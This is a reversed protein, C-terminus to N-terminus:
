GVPPALVRDTDIVMRQGVVLEAGGNASRLTIAAQNPDDAGITAAIGAYTDGPRVVHVLPASDDRTEAIPGFSTLSVGMLQSVVVIVVSLATAVLFRRRRHLEVDPRLAGAPVEVRGAGEILELRPRGSAPELWRDHDLIPDNAFATATM